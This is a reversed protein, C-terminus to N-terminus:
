LPERWPFSFHNASPKGVTKNNQRRGQRDCTLLERPLDRDLIELFSEYTRMYSEEGEDNEFGLDAQKKERPKCM